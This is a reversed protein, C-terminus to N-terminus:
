QYLPLQSLLRMSNLKLVMMLQSKGSVMQM